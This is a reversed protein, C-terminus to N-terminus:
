RAPQPELQRLRAEIEDIVWDPTSAGATIGVSLVQPDFDAGANGKELMEVTLSDRESSRPRLWEPRLDDASHIFHSQPNVQLVENYLTRSNSSHSDVVVLM